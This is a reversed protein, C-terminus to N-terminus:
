TVTYLPPIDQVIRDEQGHPIRIGSDQHLVPMVAPQAPPAMGKRAARTQAVTGAAYGSMDSSGPTTQRHNNDFPQLNASSEYRDSSAPFSPVAIHPVDPHTRTQPMSSPYMSTFPTVEHPSQSSGLDMRGDNVIKVHRRRRWFVFAFIALLAIAGVVGGVIAGVPTKSVQNHDSPKDNPNSTSNTSTSTNTVYLYDLTLPTAPGSAGQYTVLLSHPGPTLNPTTFFAQNYITVTATPSLGNLQFTIPDGGDISYSGSAAGHPLETPVFGVWTVSKGVFNFRAQAGKVTTMNAVGGLDGWNSDYKIAPDTNQVLLVTENFSLTPSPTFLLYDLWFATGTTTVNITIEHPGDKLSNQQCLYWNNEAYQFPATAGISIQDVFCEWSPDWSSGNDIKALNTTGVVAVSTGEFAFSASGNAKTGHSTRLYTPGFNGVNDESGQDQFWGQGSYLIRSDTDDVVIKRSAM